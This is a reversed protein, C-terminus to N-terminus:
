SEKEVDINGLWINWLWEKMLEAHKHIVEPSIDHM